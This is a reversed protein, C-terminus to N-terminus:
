IRVAEDTFYDTLYKSPEFRKGGNFQVAFQGGAWTMKDVVSSLPANVIDVNNPNAYLMGAQLHSCFM